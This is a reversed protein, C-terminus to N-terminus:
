ISPQEYWRQYGVQQDLLRVTAEAAGITAQCFGWERGYRSRTILDELTLLDPYRSIADQLAQVAGPSYILGTCVQVLSPAYGQQTVGIFRNPHYGLATNQRIVEEVADQLIGPCPLQRPM